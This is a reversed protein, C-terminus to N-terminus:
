GDQFLTLGNSSMDVAKSIAIRCTNETALVPIIKTCVLANEEGIIELNYGLDPVHSVQVDWRLKWLGIDDCLM